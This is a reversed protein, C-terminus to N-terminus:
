SKIFKAVASKKQGQVRLFFLGSPFASVDIRQSNSQLRERKLTRGQIDTIEVFDGNAPIFDVTFEIFSKAPNPYINLEGATIDNNVTNVTSDARFSTSFMSLGGRDNGVVMELNGDGTIDALAFRTSYGENLLSVPHGSEKEFSAAL